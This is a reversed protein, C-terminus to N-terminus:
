ALGTWRHKSVDISQLTDGCMAAFRHVASHRRVYGCVLQASSEAEDSRLGEGASSVNRFCAWIIYQM